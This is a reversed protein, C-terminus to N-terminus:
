YGGFAVPAKTSAKGTLLYLSQVVSVEWFMPPHPLYPHGLRLELPTCSSPCKLQCYSLLLFIRPMQQESQTVPDAAGEGLFNNRETNSVALRHNPPQILKTTLQHLQTGQNLNNVDFSLCLPERLSCAQATQENEAAYVLSGTTTMNCPTRRYTTTCCFSAVHIAKAIDM